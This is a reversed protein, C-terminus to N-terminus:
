LEGLCFLIGNIFHELAIIAKERGHESNAKVIHFKELDKKLKALEERIKEESLM